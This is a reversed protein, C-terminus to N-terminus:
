KNLRKERIPNVQTVNLLHMLKENFLKFNEVHPIHGVGELEILEAGNIAAATKKGLDAYNGLQSAMEPTVRERGIATRDKLGIILLTPVKIKDLEYCVPQTYIMDSTLAMSWAYDKFKESGYFARNLNLLSDYRPIWEGHFYNDVMYKKATEPTKALEKEYEADVSSYPVVQKWDELGIPDELILREVREPYMIAFRIALMGGMSHGLIIASDVSLTDLLTKTNIALQQFTYQYNHPMSSKGFGVQDVAIVDFGLNVLGTMTSDWYQMNFNKGHLLLVTRKRPKTSKEYIYSMQLDQGQSTFHMQKVRSPYFSEQKVQGYM